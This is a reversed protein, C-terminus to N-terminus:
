HSRKQTTAHKCCIRDDRHRRYVATKGKSFYFTWVFSSKASSNVNIYLQSACQNWKWMPAVKMCIKLSKQQTARAESGSEQKFSEGFFCLGFSAEGLKLTTLAAPRPSPIGSLTMTTAAFVSLTNPASAPM